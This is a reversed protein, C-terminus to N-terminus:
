ARVWVIRVKGWSTDADLVLEGKEFRFVRLQDSAEVNPFWAGKVHHIVAHRALDLSFTGFYGFYEKFAGAGEEESAERWDDSKFRTRGVAVLQAAMHGDATYILQGIAHDGLPYTKSGDKRVESWEKLAWAGGVLKEKMAQEHAMAVAPSAGMMALIPGYASRLQMAFSRSFIEAQHVPLALAM